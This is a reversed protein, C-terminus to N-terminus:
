RVDREVTVDTRAPRRMAALVESMRYRIGTEGIKYHPVRNKKAMAYLTSAGVGLVRSIERATVLRENCPLETPTEQTKM